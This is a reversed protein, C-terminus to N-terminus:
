SPTGPTCRRSTATSRAPASGSPRSSSRALAVRHADHRRRLCAGRAAVRLGAAPQHQADHRARRHGHLGVHDDHDPEAPADPQHQRHRQHGAVPPRRSAPPRLLRAAPPRDERGHAPAPPLRHAAHRRGHHLGAGLSFIASLIYARPWSRSSPQGAGRLRHGRGPMVDMSALMDAVNAQGQAQLMQSSRSRPCTASAWPAWRSASSARSSSTPPRAWCSPASSPWSSASSPSSSSSCSGAASPGCSASCACSPPRPLGEVQRGAHGHGTGSAPGAVPDAPRAREAGASGHRGRRGPRGMM